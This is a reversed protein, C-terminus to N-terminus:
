AKLTLFQMSSVRCIVKTLHPAMAQILTLLIMEMQFSEVMVQYIRLDAIPDVTGTDNRYPKFTNYWGSNVSDLTYEDVGNNSACGSLLALLGLSLTTKIITKMTKWSM